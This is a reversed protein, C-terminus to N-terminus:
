HQLVAKGDFETRYPIARNETLSFIVSKHHWLRPYPSMKGVAAAKTAFMDVIRSLVSVHIAVSFETATDGEVINEKDDM